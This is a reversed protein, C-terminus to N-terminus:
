PAAMADRMRGLADTLTARPCGFNLRVFGEGPKGYDLGHNLAVRARELFFQQANGPIGAARCDLWALFTGEPMCAQVGPLHERVYRLTLDRNEELYRLLEELWPQCDRYAALAATFSLIDPEMVLGRSAARLTHRVEESPVVAVAFHLGPINYTKSPALLTITRAAIEPSLSAIPVHRYGSYVFDAHIEDSCIVLNHRLCIEAIHQLEEATFVRGVPNQPNCLIFVRTRPTIAAEFADLDTVYSGDDQRTLPTENNICGANGPACLMPPYAPTQILVDDEPAAFANCTLNFGLVVGPLFLLWEPAVEWRYLRWLREIVVQRLEPPEVAYGFVGHEVRRQLAERVALPSLFDMDAIWLPLVQEDYQCWKLSDSGLRTVCQDFDCIM